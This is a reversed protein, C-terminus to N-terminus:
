VAEMVVYDWDYKPSPATSNALMSYPHSVLRSRWLDTVDEFGAAEFHEVWWDMSRICYHTPDETEPNRNQREYLEITDMCCFFLGGPTIVRRCEALISPVQEPRWHEAVQACHLGSFSPSYFSMSAADMHALVTKLSPWKRTGLDIMYSNLDIGRMDVDAADRFGKVISGCACGIDLVPLQRWGFVDSLWKAYRRQWDGHGLYDLGARRHEEYYSEDYATSTLDKGMTVENTVQHNAWDSFEQVLRDPDIHKRCRHEPLICDVCPTDPESYGLRGMPYGPHLLRNPANYGYNGGFLIYASGQTALAMPVLFGNAGVSWWLHTLGILTQVNIEGHYFTEHLGKIPPPSLWEVGQALSAIGVLTFDKKLFDVLVQLARPDCNRAPNLWEQRVTPPRVLVIPNKYKDILKMSLEYAAGVWEDPIKMVIDLPSVGQGNLYPAACREMSEHHNYGRSVEVPDYALRFWPENVGSLPMDNATVGDRSVFKARVGPALEESVTRINKKATRLSTKARIFQIDYDKLFDVYMQPWPTILTLPSYERALALVLPRSWLNDGMGLMTKVIM